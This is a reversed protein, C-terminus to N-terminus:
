FKEPLAHERVGGGGLVRTGEACVHGIMGVTAIHLGGEGGHFIRAIPRVTQFRVKPLKLM